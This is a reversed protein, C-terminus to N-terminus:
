DFKILKSNDFFTSDFTVGAGMAMTTTFFFLFFPSSDNPTIIISDYFFVFMHTLYDM